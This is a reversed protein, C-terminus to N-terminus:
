FDPRRYIDYNRIASENGCQSAIKFSIKPEAYTVATTNDPDSPNYYIYNAVVTYRDTGESDQYRRVLQGIGGSLNQISYTASHYINNEGYGWETWNLMLIDPFTLSDVDVMDAMYIDASVTCGANEVNSVVTLREEAQDTSNLAHFSFMVAALTVIVGLGVAVAIEAVTFGKENMKM